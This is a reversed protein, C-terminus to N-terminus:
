LPLKGRDTGAEQAIRPMDKDLSVVKWYDTDIGQIALFYILATVDCASGFSTQSMMAKLRLANEQSLNEKNIAMNIIRNHVDNRFSPNIEQSLEILNRLIRTKTYNATVLGTKVAWDPNKQVAGTILLNATMYCAQLGKVVTANFFPVTLSILPIAKLSQFDSAKFSGRVNAGGLPIDVSFRARLSRIMKSDFKVMNTEFAEPGFLQTKNAYTERSDFEESLLFVESPDSTTVFGGVDYSGSTVPVRQERTKLVYWWKPQSEVEYVEGKDLNNTEFVINGKSDLEIFVSDSVMAAITNVDILNNSGDATVLIHNLKAGSLVLDEATERILKAGKLLNFTATGYTGRIVETIRDSVSDINFTDKIVTDRHVFVAQAEPVVQMNRALVAMVPRGYGDRVKSLEFSAIYEAKGIMKYRRSEIISAPLSTLADLAQDVSTTKMMLTTPQKLSLAAKVFVENRAFSSIIDNERWVNPVNGRTSAVLMAPDLHSRVGLLIDHFLDDTDMEEYVWKGVKYFMKGLQILYESVTVDEKTYISKLGSVKRIVGATFAEDQLSEITVNAYPYFMQKSFASADKITGEKIFHGMILEIIASQATDSIPWKAVANILDNKAFQPTGIKFRLVKFCKALVSSISKSLFFNAIEEKVLPQRLADKVIIPNPEVGFISITKTGGQLTDVYTSDLEIEIRQGEVPVPARDNLAKYMRVGDLEFKRNVIDESGDNHVHNVDISLDDKTITVDLIDLTTGNLQENAKDIIEDFELEPGVNRIEPGILDESSMEFNDLAREDNQREVQKSFNSSSSVSNNRNRRNTM